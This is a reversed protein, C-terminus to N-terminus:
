LNYHGTTLANHLLRQQFDYNTIQPVKGIVIEWEQINRMIKSFAPLNHTINYSPPSKNYPLRCYKNSHM